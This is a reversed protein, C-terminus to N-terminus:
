VRGTRVGLFRLSEATRVARLVFTRVTYGASVYDRVVTLRPRPSGDAVTRSGNGEHQTMTLGFLYETVGQPTLGFEKAIDRVTMGQGRLGALVRDLVQSSEHVLASGPEASRFGRKSLEVLAARYTWDTMLGLAHLRNALATASVNWRAKARIIQAVSPNRLGVALVDNRPMLLASAFQNAAAEAERGHACCSHLSYM